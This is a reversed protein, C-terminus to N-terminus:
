TSTPCRALTTLQNDNIKRLAYQEVSIVRGGLKRQQQSIVDQFHRAAEDFNDAMVHCAGLMYGFFQKSWKNEVLLRQWQEASKLWNLQFMYCWGLEYSCLHQLQVFQVQVAASKNFDNIAAPVNGQMRRLRGQIFLFLCSDNYVTLCHDLIRTAQEVHGQLEQPISLFSPLLAHYVLLLLAAIPWRLGQGDYAAWLEQLGKDRDGGFGLMEVMRLIRPPLLAIVLNFAGIGFHIGGRDSNSVPVPNKGTVYSECQEYGKYSRRIGLGGKVFGSITEDLMCLMSAVLRSESVILRNSLQEESPKKGKMFLVKKAAGKMMGDGGAFKSALKEAHQLRQLATQIDEAEFTM